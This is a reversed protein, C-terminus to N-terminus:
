SATGKSIAKILANVGRNYNPLGRVRWKGTGPWFDVVFSGNRVILHAGNNATTYGIGAQTLLRASAERNDGRKEARQARIARWTASIDDDPQENSM